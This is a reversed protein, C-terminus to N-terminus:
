KYLNHNGIDLFNVGKGDFEFLIRFSRDVSFSWLKKLKGHLKHTQLQPSFPNKRFVAEKKEARTRIEKLLKKYSNEFRPHLYIKM